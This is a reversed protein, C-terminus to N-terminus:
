VLVAKLPEILKGVFLNFIVVLFVGQPSPFALKSLNSILTWLLNISNPKSSLAKFNTILTGIGLSTLISILKNSYDNWYNPLYILLRRSIVNNTYNKNKLRLVLNSM